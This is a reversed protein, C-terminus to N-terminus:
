EHNDVKTKPLQRYFRRPFDRRVEQIAEEVIYHNDVLWEAAPTIAAGSDVDASITRYVQLIEKDNSKHRSFFEFELIEPLKKVGDRGFAQGIDHLEENALYAARITDNHDVQNVDLERTAASPTSNFSM